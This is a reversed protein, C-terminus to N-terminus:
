RTLFVLVVAFLAAMAARAYRGVRLGPHVDWDWGYRQYAVAIRRFQEKLAVIAGLGLALSALTLATFRFRGFISVVLVYLALFRGVERLLWSTSAIDREVWALWTPPVRVDLLYYRM